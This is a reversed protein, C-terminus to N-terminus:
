EGLCIRACIQYEDLYRIAKIMEKQGYETSYWQEVIEQKSKSNIIQKGVFHYYSEITGKETEDFILIEEEKLSISRRVKQGKQDSLEMTIEHESVDLMKVSSRKAMRFIGWYQSQETNNVMVTNHAATSRFFNREKCQYAYTGCNVLVPKGDRFLEFSMADCHAHGPIYPPGPQGADVILKWAGQKFIYFGSERLQSKYEPVLDFHVKCVDVLAQLSKAVNNGSDNFLPIRDLGEELSWAVDLMPQLYSEIERDAKETEKLAVAVRIIGEFVLKHYMPSLEFHMGDALIEEKCETKFKKLVCNFMQTDNFFLACLTIAKLNEFYHNGLIDKELHGSLYEYQEHVSIIFKRKFDKGLINEVATYYSLWNTLRLAITYSSWGFGEQSQPNCKIWSEIMFITKDLYKRDHTDLYTKVIPFLYEFYHLNFNWLASEDKFNWKGDWHFVKSSHLFSIKDQMFEEVSFRELFMPDFDLQPVTAIPRVANLDGSVKCGISCDLKLIKRIRYYIQSVKMSQITNIYLGLKTLMLNSRLEGKLEM